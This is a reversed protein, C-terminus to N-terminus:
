ARLVKSVESTTKEHDVIATTVSYGFYGGVLKADTTELSFYINNLGVFTPRKEMDDTQRFFKRKDEEDRSIVSTIIEMALPNKGINSDAYKKAEILLNSMDIDNLFWPVNGKTYLEDFMDYFFSDMKIALTNPMFLDNEKFLLEKYLVNNISVDKITFPTIEQIIPAIVVAYNGYDDLIAYVSLVKVVSGLGALNRVLYREPFIIRLNETTIVSNGVDKFYSSIKKPDRKLKSTNLVDM